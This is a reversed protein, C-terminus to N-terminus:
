DWWFIWIDAPVQFRAVDDADGLFQHFDRCYAMQEVTCRAVADPDRPPDDVILELYSGGPYYLQAGHQHEWHRLVGLHEAPTLYDPHTPGGFWNAPAILGPVLVAVEYGAAAPV